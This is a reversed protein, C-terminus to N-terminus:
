TIKQEEANAVSMDQRYRAADHAATQEAAEEARYFLAAFIGLAIKVFQLFDQLILIALNPPINM